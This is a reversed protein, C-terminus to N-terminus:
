THLVFLSFVKYLHCMMSGLNCLEEIELTYCSSSVLLKIFDICLQVSIKTQEGEDTSTQETNSAVFHKMKFAQTPLQM